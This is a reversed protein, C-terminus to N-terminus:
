LELTNDYFTGITLHLSNAKLSNPLMPFYIVCVRFGKLQLNPRSFHSHIRVYRGNKNDPIHIGLGVQKFDQVLGKTTDIPRLSDPSEM